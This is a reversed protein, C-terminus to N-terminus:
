PTLVGRILSATAEVVHRDLPDLIARRGRTERRSAGFRHM